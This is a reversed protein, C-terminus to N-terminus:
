QSLVELASDVVAPDFQTGAGNKLEQICVSPPLAKRYARDSNMADYSDAVALIRALKPIDLGRLRDPYGRGDWREHHNRIVAIEEPDLGLPSVINVGTLPHIQIHKFEEETLRGPKNLVSDSVGIKGIDHLPAASAIRQLDERSCGMRLAISSAYETVRSSHQQTYSDKAEIASVLAMLTAMFSERVNDYLAINEINLAAKEALFKLIFEDEGDFGKQDVKGGLLLVGFPENRINFPIAMIGDERCLRDLALTTGSPAGFHSTLFSEELLRVGEANLRYPAEVGPLIGEVGEQAIALLHSNGQDYIMFCARRANCSEAAKKVICYYLSDSRNIKSLSDVINYLTAQLRIRKELQYNLEEVEKKKELEQRLLWNKEKLRRHAHLRELAIKVDEFRFPKVLFDSAGYRMVEIVTEMSPYGTMVIVGSLHLSDNMKKLVELGSVKPMMLDVFLYEYTNRHIEDLADSGDSVTQIQRIGIHRLYMDLTECIMPEDDAILIHLSELDNSTLVPFERANEVQM